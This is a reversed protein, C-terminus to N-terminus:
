RRVKSCASRDEESLEKSKEREACESATLGLGASSSSSVTGSNSAVQSTASKKVVVVTEDDGSHDRLPTKDETTNEGSKRLEVSSNSKKSVKQSVDDAGSCASAIFFIGLYLGAMRIRLKM